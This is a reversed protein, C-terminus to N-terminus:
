FHSEIDAFGAAGKAFTFTGAQRMEKAARILDGYALRALASGVSIRRVGVEALENVGFTTGPLGMVVNVPKSVA